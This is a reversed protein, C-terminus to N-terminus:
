YVSMSCQVKDAFVSLSILLYHLTFCLSQVKLRTYDSKNKSSHADGTAPQHAYASRAPASSYIIEPFPRAHFERLQAYVNLDYM